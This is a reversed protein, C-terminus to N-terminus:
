SETTGQTCIATKTSPRKPRKPTKTTVWSCIGGGIVSKDKILGYNGDEDEENSKIITLQTGPLSRGVERFAEPPGLYDLSTRDTFNQPGTSESMGYSNGLPINISLFYKRIAPDLPAAGFLFRISQDLGL